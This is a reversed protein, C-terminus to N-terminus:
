SSRGLVRGTQTDKLLNGAEILLPSGLAYLDQPLSFLKEYREGM